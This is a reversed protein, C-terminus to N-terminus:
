SIHNFRRETEDPFSHDQRSLLIVPPDKIKKIM